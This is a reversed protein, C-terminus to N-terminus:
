QGPGARRRVRASRRAARGSQASTTTSSPEPGAYASGERLARAGAGLDHGQRDVAALAGGELRAERVDGRRSGARRHHAGVGVALVRQGVDDGDALAQQAVGRARRSTSPVRVKSPWTGSRLRTPLVTVRQSNVAAVRVRTVSVWVPRRPM